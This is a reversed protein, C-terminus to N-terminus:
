GRWEIQLERRLRERKDIEKQVRERRAAERAKIQAKFAKQEAREKAWQIASPTKEHKQAAKRKAYRARNYERVRERNKARWEACKAAHNESTM